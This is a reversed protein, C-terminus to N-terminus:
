TPQVTAVKRAGVGGYWGMRYIDIRYDSADTAVKFDITEGHNVSFQAAYGQISASPKSTLEWGPTGPLSNEAVIENVSMMWRNELAEFQLSPNSSRGAASRNGRRGNKKPRRRKSFM